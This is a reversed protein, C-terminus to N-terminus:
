CHEDSPASRTIPTAACFPADDLKLSHSTGFWAKFPPTVPLPPLWVVSVSSEAITRAALQAYSVRPERRPTLSAGVATRYAGSVRDGARALCDGMAPAPTSIWILSRASM